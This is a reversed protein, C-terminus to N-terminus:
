EGKTETSKKERAAARQSRCQRIATLLQRPSDGKLVFVDAGAALAAQKANYDQSLVIVQPRPNLSRAEALLSAPPHGPLEWDLLVLEPRSAQLLARLSAANSATGVIHMGPEEGIYLEIALRLDAQKTAVLIDMRFEIRGSRAPQEFTNPLLCTEQVWYVFFSRQQSRDNPM